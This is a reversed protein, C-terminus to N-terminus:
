SNLVSQCDSFPEPWYNAVRRSGGSSSVSIDVLARAKTGSGEGKVEASISDTNCLKGSLM